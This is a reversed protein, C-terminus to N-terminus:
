LFDSLSEGPFRWQEFDLLYLKKEEPVWIANGLRHDSPIVDLAKVKELEVSFAQDIARQTEEPCDEPGTSTGNIYQMVFAPFRRPFIGFKRWKDNFIKFKFVGFPEPVNIDNDYLYKCIDHEHQIRGPKTSIRTYWSELTATNAWAFKAIQGGEFKPKENIKYLPGGCGLSCFPRISEPNMEKLNKTKLSKYDIM